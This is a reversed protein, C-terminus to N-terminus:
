ALVNKLGAKDPVNNLIGLDPDYFFKWILFTVIGPLLMPIVVLVRCWYQMWDSIM